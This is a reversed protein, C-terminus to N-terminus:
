VRFLVRQVRLGLMLLMNWVWDPYRRICAEGVFGTRGTPRSLLLHAQRLAFSYKLGRACRQPQTNGAEPEPNRIQAALYKEAQVRQLHLNSIFPALYNQAQMRQLKPNSILAAFYKQAQMRQLKPNSILAAFYKQAQMRQLQPHSILPALYVQAQVRKPKSTSKPKCETPKCTLPVSGGGGGGM